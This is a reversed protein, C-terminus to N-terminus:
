AGSTGRAPPRVPDPADDPLPPPEHPEQGPVRRGTSGGPRDDRPMDDPRDVRPKRPMPKDGGPMQMSYARDAAM